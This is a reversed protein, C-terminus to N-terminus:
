FAQRDKIEERQLLSIWRNTQFFETPARMLGAKLQSPLRVKIHKGGMPSSTNPIPRPYSQASLCFFLSSSSLSAHEQSIIFNHTTLQYEIVMCLHFKQHVSSIWYYCQSHTRKQSYKWSFMEVSRWNHQVTHLFNSGQKKHSFLQQNGRCMQLPHIM